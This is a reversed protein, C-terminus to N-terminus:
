CNLLGKPMRACIGAAGKNVEDFAKLVCRYLGNVTSPPFTFSTNLTYNKGQSNSFFDQLATFEDNAANYYYLEWRGKSLSFNDSIEGKLQITEGKKILLTDTAPSSLSILPALADKANEIKIDYEVFDAENGGADLCLILFHYNGASVNSPITFSETVEMTKGKLDQIKLVKWPESRPHVHCDFNHHIDIKYQSLARNDKFLLKLQIVSDTSVKIVRKSLSGCLRDEVASPSIGQVTISPKEIDDATIQDEDTSGEGCSFGIVLLLSLFPVKYWIKM